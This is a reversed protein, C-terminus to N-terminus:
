GLMGVGESNFSVQGGKELMVKPCQGTVSSERLITIIVTEGAFLPFSLNLIHDFAKFM